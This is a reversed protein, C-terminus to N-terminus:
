NASDGWFSPSLSLNKTEGQPQVGLWGVSPWPQRVGLIYERRTQHHTAEFLSRYDVCCALILVAGKTKDTKDARMANLMDAKAVGIGQTESISEGPLLMYGASSDQDSQEGLRPCARDELAVLSEGNRMVDAECFPHVNVAASHGINKLVINVASGGYRGRVVFPEAASVQETVWPRESLSLQQQMTQWQQTSVRVLVLTFVAM